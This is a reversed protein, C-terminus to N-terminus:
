RGAEVALRCAHAEDVATFLDPLHRHQEAVWTLFAATADAPSSATAEGIQRWTAGAHLARLVGTQLGRRAARAAAVETALLELVEDADVRQGRAHRVAIDLGLDAARTALMLPTASRGPEVDLIDEPQCPRSM